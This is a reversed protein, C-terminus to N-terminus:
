LAGGGGRGGSGGAGVVFSRPRSEGRLLQLSQPLLECGVSVQCLLSPLIETSLQSQALVLQLDPELILSGLQLLGCSLFPLQSLHQLSLSKVIM